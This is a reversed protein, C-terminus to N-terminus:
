LEKLRLIWDIVQKRLSDFREATWDGSNNIINREDFDCLSRISDLFINAKVVLDPHREAKLSCLKELQYIYRIDDIGERLAEWNPTAL